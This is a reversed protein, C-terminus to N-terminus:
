NSVGEKIKDSNDVIVLNYKISYNNIEELFEPKDQIMDYITCGVTVFSKSEDPNSVNIYNECFSATDGEFNLIHTQKHTQKNPVGYVYHKMDLKNIYYRNVQNSTNSNYTINKIEEKTNENDCGVFLSFVVLIVLVWIYKKQIKM